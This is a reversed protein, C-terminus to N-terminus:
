RCICRVYCICPNPFHSLSYSVKNELYLSRHLELRPQIQRYGLCQAVSISLNESSRSRGTQGLYFIEPEILSERKLIILWLGVSFSLLYGERIIYVPLVCLCVCVYFLIDPTNPIERLYAYLPKLLSTVWVVLIVLQDISQSSSICSRVRRLGQHRSNTVNSFAGYKWLGPSTQSRWQPFECLSSHRQLSLLLRPWHGHPVLLRHDGRRMCDRSVLMGKTKLFWNSSDKQHRCYM